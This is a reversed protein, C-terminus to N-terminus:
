VFGDLRALASPGPSVTLEAARRPLKPVRGSLEIRIRHFAALAVGLLPDNWAVDSLSARVLGGPYATLVVGQRRFSSRLRDPDIGRAAHSAARILLIGSQHDPHIVLPNWGSESAVRSLVRSNKVRQEFRSIGSDARGLQVSVAASAPFLPALNVTEGQGPFGRASLSRALSLLPDNFRQARPLADAVECVLGSTRWKPAVAVSLPLGSGVWKHCGGIYLDGPGARLDLPTHGLAQAADVVTFRPVGSTALSAVLRVLPLRIGDFTVETVFLGDAGSRCYARTLRDILEDRDAREAVLAERTPVSVLRRGRRRAEARLIEVHPPWELDTHLIVRCFRCLLRAALEMLPASHSSLYVEAEQPAGTLVRLAQLFPGIGRWDGLDPYRCRLERPWDDFGGRLLDIVASSAGERGVLRVFDHHARRARPPMLGLRATDLYLETPM